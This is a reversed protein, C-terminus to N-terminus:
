RKLLAEDETCGLAEYMDWKDESDSHHQYQDWLLVWTKNDNRAATFYVAKRVDPPIRCYLNM